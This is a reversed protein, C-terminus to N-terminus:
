VRLREGINPFIGYHRKHTATSRGKLQGKISNSRSRYGAAEEIELGLVAPLADADAIVLSRSPSNDPTM